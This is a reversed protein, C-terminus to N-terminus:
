NITESVQDPDAPAHSANADTVILPFEEVLSSNALTQVWYTGATPFVVNM